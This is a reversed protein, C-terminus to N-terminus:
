NKILTGIFPENNLIKKLNEMDKGNAVTVSLNLLRSRESAIPDFPFNGGPTWTHGVIKQFEGWSIEDIPTAQPHTAPDATYVKTINSLNIITKVNLKEALTVACFDTSFGPHWGGAVLVRSEGIPSSEYDRFYEVSTYGEFISAILRANLHTASIGLWDQTKQELTSNLSRYSEQYRRALSGGGVILIIQRESDVNLWSLICTRFNKLFTLDIGDPSVLSGGLSLIKKAM